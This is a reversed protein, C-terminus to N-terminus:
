EQPPGVYRTAVVVDDFLVSNEPPPERVGNRRLCEPTVYHELWFYSIKLDKSTRWRFGEFPDGGRELLRFGMGTWPGRPAGKAFHAALKGDLWMTLEGDSTEADSNLKIRFEVCQWRDRPVAQDEIPRLGNGWSKGDASVKMERWYVYFNWLGPAPVRGDYGFPEIGASFRDDGKPAVGAQPDPWRVVPNRGGLWVFHHVYGADKPFKVLFRAYAEDVGRDLLGFLHGGHDKGLTATMRISRKGRTATPADDSFALPRGEKNSVESWRKGLDAIEGKEFNETLLVDPDREIGRDRPYKAALGPGEPLATAPKKGGSEQAPLAAAFAFAAAIAACVSSARGLRM